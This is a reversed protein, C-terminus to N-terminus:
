FQVGLRLAIRKYYFDYNIDRISSPAGPNWVYANQEIYSFTKYSYGISAVFFTKAAIPKKLGLGFEGYFTNKLKYADLNNWSYKEPFSSTRWPINVGADAYLFLSNNHTITKRVDFFIPTSQSGYGDFSVGVGVNWKNYSIGNITQLCIVNQNNGWLTGLSNISAFAVKSKKIQAFNNTCCFILIALLIKKM